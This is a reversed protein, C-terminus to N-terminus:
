LNTEASKISVVSEEFSPPSTYIEPNQSFGFGEQPIGLFDRNLEGDGNVDHFIALAYSGLHLNNITLTPSSGEPVSHRRCSRM